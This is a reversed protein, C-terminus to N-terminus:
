QDGNELTMQYIGEDKHILYIMVVVIIRPM